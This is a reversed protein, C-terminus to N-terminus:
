KFIVLPELKAAQGKAASRRYARSFRSASVRWETHCNYCQYSNGSDNQLNQTGCHPCVCRRYLWDRYTDLCDQIYDDNISLRYKAALQRAKDWASVELHLLELDTKYGTHGLLGHSVEHLLSWKDKRTAPDSLKYFVEGTAPCWYHSQGATFKLEPFDSILQNIFVEM